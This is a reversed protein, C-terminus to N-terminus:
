LILHRKQRSVPVVVGCALLLNGTLRDFERIQMPNVIFRAHVRVFGAIQLDPLFRGLNKTSMITKTESGLVQHIISYNGSAEIFAVEALPLYLVKTKERLVLVDSMLRRLDLIMAKEHIRYKKPSLSDFIVEMLEDVSVPSLMFDAAGLACSVSADEKNQSIVIHRCHEPFPFDFLAELSISASDFDFVVVDSVAVIAESLCDIKANSVLRFHAELNEEKAAASILRFLSDDKTIFLVSKKPTKM